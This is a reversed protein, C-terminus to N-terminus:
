KWIRIRIWDLLFDLDSQIWICLVASMASIANYNEAATRFNNVFSCQQNSVLTVSGSSGCNFQRDSGSGYKRVIAGARFCQIKSNLNHQAPHNPYSIALFFAAIWTLFYELWLLPLKLTCWIFIDIILFFFDLPRLLTIKPAPAPARIRIKVAGHLRLRFFYKRRRLM